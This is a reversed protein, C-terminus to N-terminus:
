VLSIGLGIAGAIASVIMLKLADKLHKALEGGELHRPPLLRRSLGIFFCIGALVIIILQVMARPRNLRRAL